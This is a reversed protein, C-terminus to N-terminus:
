HARDLKRDLCWEPQPRQLNSRRCQLYATPQVDEGDLRADHLNEHRQVPCFAADDATLFQKREAPFAPNDAIIGQVAADALEALHEACFIAYGDVGDRTDAVPKSALLFCWAIM